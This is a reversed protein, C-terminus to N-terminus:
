VAAAVFADDIVESEAFSWVRARIQSVPSFAAWAVFSGTSTEVAVTDGPAPSGSVHAVAGSFIWPHRRVLSRERGPQLVLRPAGMQPVTDTAASGKFMGQHEKEELAAPSCGIM